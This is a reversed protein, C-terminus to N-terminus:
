HLDWATEAVDVTFTGRLAGGPRNYVAGNHRDMVNAFAWPLLETAADVDLPDELSIYRGGPLEGSGECSWRTGIGYYWLVQLDAIIGEDATVMTDNVPCHVTVQKHYEPIAWGNASWDKYYPPYDTM